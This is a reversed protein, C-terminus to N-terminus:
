ELPISTEITAGQNSQIEFVIPYVVNEVTVAKGDRIQPEFRLQRVAALVSDVFGPHTCDIDIEQGVSGDALVDFRAKCDASVGKKGMEIPYSPTPHNIPALYTDASGPSVFLLSAAVAGGVPAVFGASSKVPNHIITMALRRAIQKLKLQRSQAIYADVFTRVAESASTDNDDCAKM